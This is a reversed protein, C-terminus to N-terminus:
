GFGIVFYKRLTVYFCAVKASGSKKTLYDVGNDAVFESGGM